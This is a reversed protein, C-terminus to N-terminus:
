KWSLIRLSENWTLQLPPVGPKIRSAILGKLYGFTFKRAYPFTSVQVRSFPSQGYLRLVSEPSYLCIHARPKILDSSEKYLYRAFFGGINPTEVVLVGGDKLIRHIEKLYSLPSPLHELVDFMAVADFSAPPFGAETLPSDLINLGEKRGQAAAWDSIELGVAEWGRDQAVRLLGGPGCGVDLFRGRAAPAARQVIDFYESRLAPTCQEFYNQYGSVLATPDAQVFYGPDSYFRKLEDPTMRPNEYVLSCDRCRVYHAGEKSWLPEQRDSGCVACRVSEM